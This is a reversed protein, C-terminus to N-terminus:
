DVDADSAEARALLDRVHRPTYSVGYTTEVHHAALATTWERQDYGQERPSHQFDSLLRDYQESQVKPPRGPRDEDYPARDLPEDVFRDLWNRVTKECVGHRSAIRDISDGQKRAIAALVRERPIEGTTRNRLTQLDDMSIDDLRGM